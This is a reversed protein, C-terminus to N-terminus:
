SMQAKNGREGFWGALAHGLRTNLEEDTVRATPRSGKLPIALAAEEQPSLKTGSGRKIM